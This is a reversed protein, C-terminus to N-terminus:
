MRIDEKNLKRPKKSEKLWDKWVKKKTLPFTKREKSILDAVVYYVCKKLINCVNLSLLCNKQNKMFNAFNVHNVLVLIDLISIQFNLTARM